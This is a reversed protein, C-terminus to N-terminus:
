CSSLPNFTEKTSLLLNKLSIFLANKPFIGVLALLLLFKTNEGFRPSLGTIAQCGGLFSTLIKAVITVANLRIRVSFLSKKRSIIVCDRKESYKFAYLLTEYSDAFEHYNTTQVLKRILALTSQWYGSAYGKKSRITKRGPGDQYRSFGIIM